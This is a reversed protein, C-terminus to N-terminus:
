LTLTTKKNPRKHSLLVTNATKVMQGAEEYSQFLPPLSQHEENKALATIQHGHMTMRTFACLHDKRGQKKSTSRVLRQQFRKDIVFLTMKSPKFISTLQDIATLLFDLPNQIKMLFHHWATSFRDLKTLDITTARGM